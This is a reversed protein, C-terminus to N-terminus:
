HKAKRRPCECVDWVYLALLPVIQETPGGSAILWERYDRYSCFAKTTLSLAALHNVDDFAWRGDNPLTTADRDLISDALANVQRCSM